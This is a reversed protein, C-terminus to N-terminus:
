YIEPSEGFIGNYYSAKLSSSNAGEEFNGRIGIFENELSFISESFQLQGPNFGNEIIQWPNLAQNVCTQRAM